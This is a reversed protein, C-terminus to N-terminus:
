NKIFDNYQQDSYSDKEESDEPYDRIFKLSQRNHNM